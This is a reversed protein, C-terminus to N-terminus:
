RDNDLSYQYELLQSFFGDMEASIPCSGVQSALDVPACHRHLGSGHPEWPPTPIIRLSSLTKRLCRSTLILALLIFEIGEEKEIRQLGVRQLVLNV